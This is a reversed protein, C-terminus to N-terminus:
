LGSGTGSPHSRALPVPLPNYDFEEFDFARVVRGASAPRKGPAETPADSDAADQANVASALVACAVVRVFYNSKPYVCQIFRHRLSM